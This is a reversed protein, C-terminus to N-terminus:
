QLQDNGSHTVIWLAHTVACMSSSDAASSPNASAIAHGAPHPKDASSASLVCISVTKDAYMQTM